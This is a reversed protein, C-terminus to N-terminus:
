SAHSLFKVSWQCKLTIFYVTQNLVTYAISENNFYDHITRVKDSPATILWECAANNPYTNEDYGPSKIMGTSATLEVHSGNACATVNFDTNM